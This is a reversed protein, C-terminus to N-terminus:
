SLTVFPVDDSGHGGTLAAASVLKHDRTDLMTAISAIPREPSFQSAVLVALSGNPLSRSITILGLDLEVVARPVDLASAVIHALVIDDEDAWSLVVTPEFQRIREALALGVATAAAPDVVLDFRSAGDENITLSVLQHLLTTPETMTM